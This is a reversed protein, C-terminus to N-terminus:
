RAYRCFVKDGDDYSFLAPLERSAVNAYKARQLLAASRTNQPHTTGWLTSVDPYRLLYDHLWTLGQLAYGRGWFAPSYLFAVEAIGDHITAEVRGILEGTKTMRAVYNIWVEGLSEAPPGKLANVLGQSFADRTPLGGIYKYVQRRLLATALEDIDTDRMPTYAIEPAM